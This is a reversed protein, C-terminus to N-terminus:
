AINLYKEVFCEIIKKLINFIITFLSFGCFHTLLFLGNMFQEVVFILNKHM